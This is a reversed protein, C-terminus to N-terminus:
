TAYGLLQLILKNRLQSLLEHCKAFHKGTWLVWTAKFGYVLFTNGKYSNSISLM